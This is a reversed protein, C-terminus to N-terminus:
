PLISEKGPLKFVWLTTAGVPVVIDPALNPWNADESGGGGTVVAVYQAGDISYTVPSSSPVSNLRVQWLIKGTAADSARFFRDRSGDFVVGGATALMSSTEPARRRQTWVVKRTELNIAEVRGFKGDSGARPAITWHMDNGGSATTSVDRPKWTFNECTENLALYLIKTDADYSTAPWNRVGVPFPCIFKMKGAEPLLAPDVHKKGTVPDISTVLNQLGLDLSSEYHGDARDVVDFIGLKGGTVLLEKTSGNVPLSILSQEFVWDFDWVDGNFHQYYWALKGTDPDLAVTADTYLADSSEGKATQPVLLTATDYTQGIGFYVQNLNPDYSGSTWVAAGYRENVPAGNWSEGGPHGPRAITNFRWLEAGTQADLGVIFCGGKYKSCSSAGMIVKGKAVIPGGDLNVHAAIGDPDVVQREWLVKGSKVQLAIMHDDATPIFLKDQYIAINRVIEGASSTRGEPLPRVYEWLLDGTAGDLAQVRNASKIFIVGDYVLPTIENPSAALSWSWAASLNGVNAKDIQRLPSFGLSAYDRRWNLWDGDSPHRLMEDTVPPLKDLKNQRDAIAAKYVADHVTPGNKKIDSSPFNQPNSTTGATAIPANTPALEIGNAVLGNSKLIFAGIDSNTKPDLTGAATPPM